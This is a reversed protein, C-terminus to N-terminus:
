IDKGAVKKFYPCKIICIMCGYDGLCTDIDLVEERSKPHDVFQSLTLSNEPCKDICVTCDGCMNKVPRDTELKMNTLIAILRYIPGYEPSVILLSRGQWGLGAQRALVKLSILGMRKQLDVEDEPHIVLYKYSREELYEIVEYAIKELYLATENGSAKKGPKGVQAGLIIGYPCQRFIEHPSIDLGTPIGNLENLNVIGILDIGLSRIFSKINITSESINFDAKSDM